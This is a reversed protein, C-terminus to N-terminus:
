VQPVEHVFVVQGNVTTSAIHDRYNHKSLAGIFHNPMGKIGRTEPGVLPRGAVTEEVRKQLMNSVARRTGMDHAVGGDFKQM